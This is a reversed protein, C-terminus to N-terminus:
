LSQSGALKASPETLTVIDKYSCKMRLKTYFDNDHPMRWIGVKFLPKAHIKWPDSIFRSHVPFSLYPITINLYILKMGSWKEIYLPTEIPKSKNKLDINRETPIKSEKEKSRGSEELIGVEKPISVHRWWLIITWNM